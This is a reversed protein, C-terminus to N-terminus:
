PNARMTIVSFALYRDSVGPGGHAQLDNGQAQGAQQSGGRRQRLHGHLHCWRGGQQHVQVPSRRRVDTGEVIGGQRGFHRRHHGAHMGIHALHDAEGASMGRSGDDAKQWVTPLTINPQDIFTYYLGAGGLCLYLTDEVIMLDNVPTGSPNDAVKTVSSKTEEKAIDFIVVGFETAIYLLGDRAEFDNIRKSTFLNTRTIDTLYRPTGFPKPFFNVTGDEYGLFLYNTTSDLYMASADVDSLGDIPSYTKYEMTTPNWTFFGGRTNFYFLSDDRIIDKIYEYSLYPTWTGIPYPRQAQVSQLTLFLLGLFAFITRLQSRM